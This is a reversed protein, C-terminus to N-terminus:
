YLIQDDQMSIVASLETGAFGHYTARSKLHRVICDELLAEIKDRGIFDTARCAIRVKM